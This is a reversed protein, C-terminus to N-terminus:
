IIRKMVDSFMMKSASLHKPDAFFLEPKPFAGAHDDRSHLDRISNHALRQLALASANAILATAIVELGRSASAARAIPNEIAFLVLSKIPM